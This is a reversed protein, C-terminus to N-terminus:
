SFPSCPRQSPWCGSVVEEVVTFMVRSSGLDTKSPKHEQLAFESSKSGSKSTRKIASFGGADPLKWAFLVSGSAQTMVYQHGDLEYSIPSSDM